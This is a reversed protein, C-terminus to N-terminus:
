SFVEALLAPFSTGYRADAPFLLTSGHSDTDLRFLATFPLETRLVTAWTLIHERSFLSCRKPLDM